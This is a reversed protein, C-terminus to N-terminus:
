RIETVRVKVVQDGYEARRRRWFTKYSEGTMQAAEYHSQMADRRAIWTGCYFGGDYKIAWFVSKEIM